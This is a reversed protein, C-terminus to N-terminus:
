GELQRVSFVAGLPDDLVALRGGPTDFGPVSVMGGLEACRVATADADAVGFYVMWHPPLDAPWMDGVMPMMGAIATEPRPEPEDGRHWLTYEVGGYDVGSEQWGFLAPYFPRAGDPDRTTLENWCLTGPENVIGAGRNRGAQWLSFPAGAPDRVAAMRGADFVDFPEGLLQGGAEAAKAATEDASDVAVYTNWTAPAEEGQQSGLAAVDRGRLSCMFYRGPADAPM